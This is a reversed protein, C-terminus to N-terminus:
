TRIKDAILKLTATVWDDDTVFLSSDIESFDSLCKPEPQEFHPPVVDEMAADLDDSIEQLAEISALAKAEAAAMDFGRESLAASLQESAMAEWDRVAAALRHGLSRDYFPDIEKELMEELVEPRLTALADLEYQHSVGFREHWVKARKETAKMPTPPLGLELAQEVTLGVRKVAVDMDGVFHQLAQLRRAIELAMNHGQPDADGVFLVLTPRGDSDQTMYSLADRLQKTDAIASLYQNPLM